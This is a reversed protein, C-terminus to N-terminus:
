GTGVEQGRQTGGKKTLLNIKNPQLLCETTLVVYQETSSRINQNNAYMNPLECGDAVRVGSPRQYGHINMHVYACM